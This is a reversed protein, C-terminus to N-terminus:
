FRKKQMPILMFNFKSYFPNNISVIKQDSKQDFNEYHKILNM